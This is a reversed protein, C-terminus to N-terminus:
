ASQLALTRLSLGLSNCAVAFWLFIPTGFFLLAPIDLLLAIAVADLFFELRYYPWLRGSTIGLAKALVLMYGYPQGVNQAAWADFKKPDAGEFKAALIRSDPGFLAEIPEITSGPGPVAHCIKRDGAYMAVHSAFTSTGYMIAWSGLSRFNATLLIDGKSLLEVVHDPLREDWGLRMPNDQNSRAYRGRRKAFNALDWLAFIM